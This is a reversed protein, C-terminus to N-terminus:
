GKMKGLDILYTSLVEPSKTTIILIAGPLPVVAKLCDFRIWLFPWLTTEKNTSIATLLLEM